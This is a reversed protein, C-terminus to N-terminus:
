WSLWLPIRYYPCYESFLCSNLDEGRACLSLPSHLTQPRPAPNSFALSDPLSPCGLAGWPTIDLGQRPNELLVASPRALLGPLSCGRRWRSGVPRSLSKGAEDWCNDLVWLIVGGVLYSLQYPTQGCQPLRPNSEQTPFIGQLLFHCDMGTNKGPSEWPCLLSAPQLRHPRM